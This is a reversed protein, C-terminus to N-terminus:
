RVFHKFINMYEKMYKWPKWLMHAGSRSTQFYHSMQSNSNFIYNDDCMKVWSLPCFAFVIGLIFGRQWMGLLYWLNCMTSTPVCYILIGQAVKKIVTFKLTSVPTHPPYIRIKSSNILNFHFFFLCVMLWFWFGQCLTCMSCSIYGM